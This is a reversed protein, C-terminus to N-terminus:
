QFKIYKQWFEPEYRTFGHTGMPLKHLLSYLYSPSLEFSFEAAEIPSPIYLELKTGRLKLCYFIDEADENKAVCDLFRERKKFHRWISHVYPNKEFLRIFTNVKRLSLGGNGVAWLKAGDEHSLHHEFWPAGIYDYKQSCWWDLKDEFVFADLQYILIYDFKSFGAYFKESLMLKNYGRLSTFFDKDFCIIEFNINKEDLYPKYWSFDFGEYTVFYFARKHLITIAQLFSLQETTDPIPKYVPMVIAVNSTQGIQM